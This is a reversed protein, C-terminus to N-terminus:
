DCGIRSTSVAVDDIWVDLGNHVGVHLEYGFNIRRFSGVVPYELGNYNLSLQAGDVFVKAPTGTKGDFQTELCVWKGIPATAKDKDVCTGGCSSMGLHAAKYVLTIFSKGLINFQYQSGDAGDGEILMAHGPSAAPAYFYMRAFLVGTNTPPTRGLSYGYQPGMGAPLTVHLASKGSHAHVNDIRMGAAQKGYSWPAAIPGSEFDLCQGAPLAACGSGAPGPPPTSPMAAAEAMAGDGPSVVRADVEVRPAVDPDMARADFKTTAPPVPRSADPTVAPTDDVAGPDPDPLPTRGPAACANLGFALIPVTTWRCLARARTRSRM